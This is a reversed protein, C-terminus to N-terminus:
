QRETYLEIPENMSYPPLGVRHRAPSYLSSSVEAQLPQSNEKLVPQWLLCKCFAGM